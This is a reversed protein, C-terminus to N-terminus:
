PSKPNDNVTLIKNYSQMFCLCYEITDIADLYRFTLTIGQFNNWTKNFPKNGSITGEM